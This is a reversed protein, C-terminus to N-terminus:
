RYYKRAYYIRAAFLGVGVVTLIVGIIFPFMSM